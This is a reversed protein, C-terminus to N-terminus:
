IIKAMKIEKQMTMWLIHVKNERVIKCIKMFKVRNISKTWSKIKDLFIWAWRFNKLIIRFAKIFDCEQSHDIVPNLKTWKTTQTVSSKCRTKNLLYLLRLRTNRQSLVCRANSLVLSIYDAHVGLFVDTSKLIKHWWWSCLFCFLAFGAFLVLTKWLCESSASCFNLLYFRVINKHVYINKATRGICSYKADNGRLESWCLSIELNHSSSICCGVQRNYLSVEKGTSFYMSIVLLCICSQGNDRSMTDHYMGM